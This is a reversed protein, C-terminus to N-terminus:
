DNNEKPDNITFYFTTGKGQESEAWIDGNHREVIRKCIALGIGTGPYQERTHLRKFPLFIRDIYEQKFGIGNDRVYFLWNGDENKAGVHIKLPRDSRFKIANSILNQFLQICYTSDVELVPLPDRTIDAKSTTLPVELNALASDLVLSFDAPRIVMDKTTVGSLSLLDEILVHMRSAGDIAHRILKDMKEDLKGKYTEEIIELCGAVGRLPEQLDHSAVSAFQQLDANSRKLEEAVALRTQEAEKSDTVDRAIKSIGIIKGSPDKIPSITLSVPILNGHKAQRVTEHRTTTEVGTMLRKVIGQEEALHDAPIILSDPRNAVESRSYGFMKTASENWNIINGDLNTGIIADNTSEVIAALQANNQETQKRKSIDRFVILGVKSEGDGLEM